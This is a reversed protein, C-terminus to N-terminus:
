KKELVDAASRRAQAALTLADRKFAESLQAVKSPLAVKQTPSPLQRFVRTEGGRRWILPVREAEDVWAAMDEKAFALTPVGQFVEARLFTAASIWDMDPYNGSGFDFLEKSRAGTEDKWCVMPDPNKSSLVFERIGDSCQELVSGDINEIKAHWSQGTRIFTVKRHPAMDWMGTSNHHWKQSYTYTIEWACNTGPKKLLPEKPPVPVQARATAAVAVAFACISALFALKFLGAGTPLAFRECGATAPPASPDIEHFPNRM